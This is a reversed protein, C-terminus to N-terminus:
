RDIFGWITNIVADVKAASLVFCTVWNDSWRAKNIVAEFRFKHEWQNIDNTDQKPKKGAIWYVSLSLQKMEYHREGGMWCRREINCQFDAPLATFCRSKDRTQRYINTDDAAAVLTQEPDLPVTRSSNIVERQWRSKDADLEKIVVSCSASEGRRACWLCVEPYDRWMSRPPLISCIIFVFPGKTTALAKRRRLLNIAM